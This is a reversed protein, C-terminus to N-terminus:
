NASMQIGSLRENGEQDITLQVGFVRIQQVTQSGNTAAVGSARLTARDGINFDVFLKPAVNAKAQIDYTIKPNKRFAIEANAYYPLVSTSADIVDPLSVLDEFVGYTTQSGTDQAFGTAYKGKVNLRNVVVSSDQTRRFSSLNDAGMGYEFNLWASRDASYTYAGVGAQGTGSVSPFNTANTRNYINLARTAPDVWFDYGSEVDSLAKIEQGVNSFQQYTRTRPQTTQVTGPIIKSAADNNAKLLLATAISGADMNSYIGDGTYEQITIDDINVLADTNTSTESVDIEHIIMVTGTNTWAGGGLTAEIYASNGGGTVTFTSTGLGSFGVTKTGIVSNTVSDRVNIVGGTGSGPFTSINISVTYSRGSTLRTGNPLTAVAYTDIVNNTSIIIDNISGSVTTNGDSNWSSPDNPFQPPTMDQYLGFNTTVGSGIFEIFGAVFSGTPDGTGVNGFSDVGYLNSLQQTAINLNADQIQIYPINNNMYNPSRQGKAFFNVRYRKGNVPTSSFPTSVIQATSPGFSTGFPGTYNGAFKLSGAGGHFNGASTDRTASANSGTWGSIASEFTGNAFTISSTTLSYGPASRILRHNLLEFWGIATVTIKNQDASYTEDVMWVPGSWVLAGDRYVLICRSIPQLFAKNPDRSDVVLSVNGSNNLQLNISAQSIRTLRAVRSLDSSNGVWFQISDVAM